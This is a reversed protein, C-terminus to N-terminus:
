DNEFLGIDGVDDCCQSQKSALAQRLRSWFASIKIRAQIRDISHQTFSSKGEASAFM